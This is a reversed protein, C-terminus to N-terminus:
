FDAQGHWVCCSFFVDGMRSETSVQVMRVGKGYASLSDKRLAPSHFSEWGVGIKARKKEIAIEMELESDVEIRVEIEMAKEM